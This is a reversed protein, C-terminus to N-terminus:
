GAKLAEDVITKAKQRFTQYADYEAAGDDDLGKNNIMALEASKSYKSSIIADILSERDSSSAEIYEFRWFTEEEGDGNERVISEFNYRLIVRGRSQGIAPLRTKSEAIM